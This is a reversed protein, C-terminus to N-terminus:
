SLHNSNVVWIPTMNCRTATIQATTLHRPSSLENNWRLLVEQQKWRCNCDPCRAYVQYRWFVIWFIHVITGFNGWIQPAGGRINLPVRGPEPHPVLQERPPPPPVLLPLLEGVGPVPVPPLRLIIRAVCTLPTCWHRWWNLSSRLIFPTCNIPSNEGGRGRWWDLTWEETGGNLPWLRWNQVDGLNDLGFISLSYLPGSPLRSAM